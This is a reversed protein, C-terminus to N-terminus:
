SKIDPGLTKQQKSYVFSYWFPVRWFAAGSLITLCFPLGGEHRLGLLLLIYYFGIQALIAFIVLALFILRRKM